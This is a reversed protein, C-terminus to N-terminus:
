PLREIPAMRAAPKRQALFTIVCSVASCPLSRSNRSSSVASYPLQPKLGSLEFRRLPWYDLLLLVFPLTVLMPKSM